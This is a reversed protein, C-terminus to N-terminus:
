LDYDKEALQGVSLLNWYVKLSYFVRSIYNPTGDKLKIDIKGKEYVPISRDDELKVSTRFTDDFDSFLDESGNLHNSFWTDLLWQNDYQGVSDFSAIM